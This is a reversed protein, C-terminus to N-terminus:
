ARSDDDGHSRPDSELLRILVSWCEMITRYFGQPLRAEAESALCRRYEKLTVLYFARFSEPTADEDLAIFQFGHDIPEFLPEILHKLAEPTAARIRDVVPFFGHSGVTWHRESEFLITGAM